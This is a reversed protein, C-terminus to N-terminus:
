SMKFKITFKAGDEDNSAEIVGGTKEIIKYTMYLGLGTGSSKFKTTFYPDFIKPLIEDPIGTGNDLIEIIHNSDSIKTTITIKPKKINNEVLNDKANQLITLIVQNIYSLNDKLLFDDIINLKIDIHHKTSDFKFINLATTIAKSIHFDETITHNNNFETFDTITDNLYNTTTIIQDLMSNIDQFDINKHDKKLISSLSSSLLLIVSLPQRYQHTINEMMEGIIAQRYQIHILKDKAELDKLQKLVEHALNEQLSKLETIDTQFGVMRIATGNEDFQAKGRNLVWIYNKDKHQLRHISEYIDTQGNLHKQLRILTEKKDDPHLRYVWEEQTDGIEKPTFGLMEKWKDSFFVKNKELNYDWLGDNSGDIALKFRSKEDQAIKRFYIKSIYQSYILFIIFALVTTSVIVKFYFNKNYVYLTDANQHAVYLAEIKNTFDNKITLFTVVDNAHPDYVSFQDAQQQLYMKSNNIFQPNNHLHQHEYINNKIILRTDVYFDKLFLHQKFYPKYEKSIKQDIISKKTLYVIDEDLMTNLNNLLDTLSVSLEVCGLYTGGDFLPYIYRMANAYVGQEYGKFSQKTQNVHNISHRVAGLDDDYKEPKHFRLFSTTNPLHFHLISIDKDKLLKYSKKLHKYLDIRNREKFLQKVKATNIYADFYTQALTQKSVLLLKYQNQVKHTSEDLYNQIDQQNSTYLYKINALSLVLFIFITISLLVKKNQVNYLM